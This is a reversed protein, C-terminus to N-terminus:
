CFAVTRAYPLLDLWKYQTLCLRARPRIEPFKAFKEHSKQALNADDRRQVRSNDQMLVCASEFLLQLSTKRKACGRQGLERLKKQAHPAGFLKWLEPSLIQTIGVSSAKRKSDSRLVSEILERRRQSTHAACAPRTCAIKKTPQTESLVFTLFIVM